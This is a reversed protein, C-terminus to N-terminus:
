LIRGRAGSWGGPIGIQAPAFMALAEAIKPIADAATTLAGPAAGIAAELEGAWEVGQASLAALVREAARVAGPHAKIWADIAPIQAQAKKLLEAAETM